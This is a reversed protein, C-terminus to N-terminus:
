RTPRGRRAPVAAPEAPLDGTLVDLEDRTKAEYAVGIREAFEELTLRGDVSHRRLLEVTREREAESARLAPETM